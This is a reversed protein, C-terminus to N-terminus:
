IILEPESALATDTRGQDAPRKEIRSSKAATSRSTSLPPLGTLANLRDSTARHEGTGM